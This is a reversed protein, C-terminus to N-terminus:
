RTTSMKEREKRNIADQGENMEKGPPRWKDGIWKIRYSSNIM